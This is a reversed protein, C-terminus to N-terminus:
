VYEFSERYIAKMVVERIKVWVRNGSLDSEDGKLCYVSGDALAEIVKAHNIRVCIQVLFPFFSSVCENRRGM